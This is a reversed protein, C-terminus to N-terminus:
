RLLTVNGKLTVQKGYYDIGSLYWVYVDMSQPVGKFTGDWGADIDKTEYVKEGWRNYVDFGQLNFVGYHLIHLFDNSGDGNPSFANPIFIAPNDNVNIVLSDVQTCGDSSTITVFYTTTHEPSAWPNAIYPNSLGTAPTWVYSVGGGALLQISDGLLIIAGNPTASISPLTFWTVTASGTDTCGFSNTAIANFTEPSGMPTALVTAGTTGSLHTGPFWSYSVGGTATLPVSEFPCVMTDSHVVVTPKPNVRVQVTDTTNGCTSTGTVTYVVIGSNVPTATPNAVSALNLTSAPSWSYQTIGAGSAGLNISQGLCITGGHGADVPLPYNVTIKVSDQLLCSGLMATVTYTTTVPPTANPSLCGMCSLGSPPTWNYTTFNTGTTLPVTQGQCIATDAITALYENMLLMSAHLNSLNSFGGSGFLQQCSDLAQSTDVLPTLDLIVTDIVFPNGGPIPIIPINIATDGPLLCVSDPVWQYDVGEIANGSLAVHFCFTDGSNLCHAVSSDVATSCFSSTGATMTVQFNGQTCGKVFLNTPYGPIPNPNNVVVNAGALLNTLLVESDFIDDFVDAIVLVLHFTDCPTVHAIATLPTTFGDFEISTQSINTPCQTTCNGGTPDNVDNCVYYQGYSGCNVNNIAVPVTTGPVLAINQQGVIGPGSIFFGFVDNFNSNVYDNYEESAFVYQFTMVSDYAVIDFELRCADNTGGSVINDLLPDGPFGWGQGWGGATNQNPIGGANGSTLIIGHNLGINTTSGNSFTGYSGPAATVTPNLIVVGPNGVLAQVLQQATVGTNTMLQASSDKPLLITLFSILCVPLLYKKM